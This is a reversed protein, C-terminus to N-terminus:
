PYPASAAPKASAQLREEVNAGREVLSTALKVRHRARVRDGSMRSQAIVGCCQLGRRERAIGDRAQELARLSVRVHEAQQAVLQGQQAGVDAVSTGGVAEGETELQEQGRTEQRLQGRTRRAAGGLVQATEGGGGAPDHATGVLRGGEREALLGVPEEDAREAAREGLCRLSGLEREPLRLPRDRLRSLM